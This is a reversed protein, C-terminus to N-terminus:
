YNTALGVFGGNNGRVIDDHSIKATLPGTSKGDPGISFLDYDTNIPILNKDKRTGGGPNGDMRKYKYPQGWPDERDDEGVAALNAPYEGYMLYYNDVAMSIAKIDGIAQIVRARDIMSGYSTLGITALIGIIVIVIMLEVLTFGRQRRRFSPRSGLIRAIM